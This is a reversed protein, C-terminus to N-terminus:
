VYSTTNTTAKFKTMGILKLKLLFITKFSKLFQFHVRSSEGIKNSHPTTPGWTRFLCAPWAPGLFPLSVWGRWCQARSSFASFQGAKWAGSESTGKEGRENPCNNGEQRPVGKEKEEGTGGPMWGGAWPHVKREWRGVWHWGAPQNQVTSPQCVIVKKEQLKSLGLRTTEM